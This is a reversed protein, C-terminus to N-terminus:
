SLLEALGEPYLPVDGSSFRALPHWGVKSGDDACIGVEYGDYLSKDALDADFVFVIEHADRGFARFRNELVGLLTVRELGAGIEEMLERRVADEALEGFEIGGGLPRCFTQDRTQDYYEFALVDDGRRIAAIAIPRIHSGTM